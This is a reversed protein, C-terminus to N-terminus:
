PNVVVQKSIMEGGMIVKLYYVGASIKGKATFLDISIQNNGAHLDYPKTFALQGSENFLEITFRGAESANVDFNIDTTAPNPSVASVEFSNVVADTGIEEGEKTSTKFLYVATPAAYNATIPATIGSGNYEYVAFSYAKNMVLGNVTTLTDSGNYVVYWGTSGIQYGATAFTTNAPYSTADAINTNDPDAPIIVTPPQISNYKALILRSTGAHGNVRLSISTRGRSTM